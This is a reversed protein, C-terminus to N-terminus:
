LNLKDALVNKDMSDPGDKSNMNGNGNYQDSRAETGMPTPNTNSNVKNVVINNM